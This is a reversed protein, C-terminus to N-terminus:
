SRSATRGPRRHRRRRTRGPRCHCPAGNSWSRRDRLAASAARCRVGGCAAGVRGRLSAAGRHARRAPGSPADGARRVRSAAGDGDPRSVRVEAPGTPNAGVPARAAPVRPEPGTARLGHDGRTGDGDVDDRKRSQQNRSGNGRGRDDEDPARVSVTGPHSPDTPTAPAHRPADNESLNAATIKTAPAVTATTGYKRACAFVLMCASFLAASLIPTADLRM